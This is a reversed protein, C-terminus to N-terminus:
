EIVVWGREYALYGLELDDRVDLAARIKGIIQAVNHASKGIRRGIEDQTGGHLKAVLVETESPCLQSSDRLRRGTAAVEARIKPENVTVRV